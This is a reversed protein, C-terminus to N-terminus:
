AWGSSETETFLADPCDTAPTDDRPWRSTDYEIAQTFFQPLARGKLPHFCPSVRAAYIRVMSMRSCRVMKNSESGIEAARGDQTPTTSEPICSAPLSVKRIKKVLM